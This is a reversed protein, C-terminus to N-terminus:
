DSSEREEFQGLTLSFGCHDRSDLFYEKYRDFRGDLFRDIEESEYDVSNTIGLGLARAGEVAMDADDVDFVVNVIGEGFHELFPSVASDKERGPAPSCLEIGANWSIAVQIGYAEGTGSADSFKAGLARAYFAKSAELDRVAVIIRSVGNIAM